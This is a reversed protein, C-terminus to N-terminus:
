VLHRIRMGEGNTREAAEGDDDCPRLDGGTIVPLLLDLVQEIECEADISREALTRGDGSVIQERSREITWSWPGAFDAAEELEYDFLCTTM